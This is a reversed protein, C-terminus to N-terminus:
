DYKNNKIKIISSSVVLVIYATKQYKKKKCMGGLTVYLYNKIKFM